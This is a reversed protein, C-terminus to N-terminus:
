SATQDPDERNAMRVLMKHIGTKIVWIKNSFLFFHTRFKLVNLGKHVPFGLCISQCFHHLMEDRDVSKALIFDM